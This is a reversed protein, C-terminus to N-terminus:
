LSHCCIITKFAILRCYWAHIYPHLIHKWTFTTNTLQQHSLFEKSAPNLSVWDSMEPPHTVCRYIWNLLFGRMEFFDQFTLSQRKYSKRMESQEKSISTQKIHLHHYKHRWAAYHSTAFTCNDKPINISIVQSQM